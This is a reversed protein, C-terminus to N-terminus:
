WFSFDCVQNFVFIYNEYTLRLEQTNRIFVNSPFDDRYKILSLNVIYDLSAKFKVFQGPTAEFLHTEQRLSGFATIVFSISELNGM